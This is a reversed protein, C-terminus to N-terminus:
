FFDSKSDAEKLFAKKSEGSQIFASVPDFADIVRDVLHNYRFSGQRGYSILNDLSFLYRSLTALDEEYGKKYVAYAYPVETTFIAEVEDGAIGYFDEIGKLVSEQMRDKFQEFPGDAESFCVEVCIGTKDPPATSSDLNKPEYIRKFCYREEPFYIQIKDSLQARKIILFYLALRRYSLKKAATVAEEPPAPRILPILDTVALTSIVKRANIEGPGEPSRYGIAPLGQENIRIDTVETNFQIKGGNEIIKKALADTVTQAGQRPYYCTIGAEKKEKNIRFLAKLVALGKTFTNKWLNHEQYFRYRESFWHPSVDVAPLGMVKPVYDRFFLRNIREGFRISLLQDVNDVTGKSFRAIVKGWLMSVVMPLTSWFGAKKLLNLPNIPSLIQQRQFGIGYFGRVLRMEEGVLERFIPLHSELFIHPGLDFYVGGKHITKLMGGPIAEKELIEVQYGAKQLQYGAWLGALGGGLILVDTPM